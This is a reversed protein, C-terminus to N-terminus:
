NKGSPCYEKFFVEANAENVLVAMKLLATKQIRKLTRVSRSNWDGWKEELQKSTNDWTNRNIVHSVILFRERENLCKLCTNLLQLKRSIVEYEEPMGITCKYDACKEWIELQVCMDNYLGLYYKLEKETM